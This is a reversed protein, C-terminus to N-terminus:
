NTPQVCGTNATSGSYSKNEYKAALTCGGFELALCYGGLSVIKAFVDPECIAAIQAFADSDILQFGKIEHVELGQKHLLNQLEDETQNTVAAVLSLLLMIKNGFRAVGNDMTQIEPNM